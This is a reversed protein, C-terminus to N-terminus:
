SWMYITEASEQEAEARLRKINDDFIRRAADTMYMGRCIHDVFGILTQPTPTLVRTEEAILATMRRAFTYPMGASTCLDADELLAAQLTLVPDTFLPAMEPPCNQINSDDGAYARRLWEAPSVFDASSKSVDTALVMTAIRKWSADPLGAAKLYPAAKNLAMAELRMPLHKGMDRNGEGDHAFDHVCAAILLECLVTQTDAFPAMANQAIGLIAALVVVERTHNHNHYPLPSPVGGLALAMLLAPALAHDAKIGMAKNLGTFLQILLKVPTAPSTRLASFHDAVEHRWAPTPLPALLLGCLVATDEDPAAKDDRLAALVAEIDAQLPTSAAIAELSEFLAPLHALMTDPSSPMFGAHAPKSM